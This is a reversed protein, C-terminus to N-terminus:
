YNRWTGACEAPPYQALIEGCADTIADFNRAAAKRLLHKLKAFVQEIPNLDPSYKPLFLLKAGAARITHRVARGKHSGLNDIIVIDGPRLTPVLVKEVYLPVERRQDPRRAAMACRHSRQSARGPVDHDEMTGAAGQRAAAPRATGLGQAAGHQDQGLAQGRSPPPRTSSFWASPTM